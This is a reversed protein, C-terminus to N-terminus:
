WVAGERWDSALDGRLSLPANVPLVYIWPQPGPILATLTM